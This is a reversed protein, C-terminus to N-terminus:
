KSAGDAGGAPASAEAPAGLNDAARGTVPRFRLAEGVHAARTENDDELDAITRAVRLVRHYGRASLALREAASALLEHADLTIPTGHHLWRAPVRANALPM